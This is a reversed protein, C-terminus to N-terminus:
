ELLLKQIKSYNVQCELKGIKGFLKNYGVHIIKM